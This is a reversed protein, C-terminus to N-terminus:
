SLSDLAEAVPQNGDIVEFTKGITAPQHLVEAIVAAVDDRPISGRGVHRDIFVLGDGEDDTLMTPRVITYDLGSRVLADDALGKARLYVNFPDQGGAAPNAGVSSVMVYRRIGSSGAAEILKVAGGLDMTEKRAPGSGPGAGAAFVVADAGAIAGTVQAADASELDCVVPEGGAERVEDIHDPNRIISVVEDGRGSLLRTLRLAIQGHGGAVAVRM